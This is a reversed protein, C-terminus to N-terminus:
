DGDLPQPKVISDKTQYGMCKGDDGIECLSPVSCSKSRNWQCHTTKCPLNQFDRSVPYRYDHKPMFGKREM